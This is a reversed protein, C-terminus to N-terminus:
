KQRSNLENLKTKLQELKQGAEGLKGQATLRQYDELDKAAGQILANLDSPTGSTKASAVGPSQATANSEAALSSAEGGFLSRLAAEFTSGYALRDQLALVVLRLEPMPSREAQLYISEAYILAKGCPIVLLTGRRVHSGHQNWLTLQGSIQANQDIRAEVQLPGDVLRTKPFDYVVSTGYQAGDSRGAIWGILNNRNSPTFPLIEVFEISSEGPLKMLVFNPEMPQTAQDGSSTTGVESAVTWLDERNYFVVPDTMHYLGYAAAQLSLLLEPYRVHRRLDPPMASADKFLQPFVNRYASIIPDSPDFVYFTTTGNYADIVVKVSNRMYNIEDNGLGYHTSYPYSDSTTFADLMWSLRGDDGVVIYPDSDFTLFPAVARVRDLVNRRMLLRSQPQIDDSFPLKTLDDRDFAILVRRLFSGLEIGGTGEYTTMSNTEGQPYDFEKQRTKVYVDTNTLQGFYIEPRKVQISPVSSQIPMNSLMLTPLGETTFGNVPNMTIGYGHTYILKENIWNRSSDPLKEINLERAALMVQREEGNIKYRDIDIDPFDYYTRIEQIQRLTDQLAHWDWLRINQLTPQNDAADAAEVTVDAPFEHQAVQDLNFAQRTFQINHAIYPQERVLENPKVIFSTMYWASIQVILFCLIAPVPAALLRRIRPRLFINSAAIGAGLILAVCVVLLGGLILHDDTYTVGGFITHDTVIRDFRGLWTQMAIVVLLFAVAASLARWPAPSSGYAGERFLQSSGTFLIFLGAIACGLIAIMLLWGFLFHLVPLTFFYFNLTRGFIPDHPGNGAGQFWFLAFGTWEGMFSAGALLAFFASAVLAGIRLVPDVPLEFTRSGLVITGANKLEDRCARRLASFWAFLILFTVISPIVFAIWKFDLTRWFVESYGLSAFWLSDVFWSITTRASFLIFLFALVILIIARRPKIPPDERIPYVVREHNVSV